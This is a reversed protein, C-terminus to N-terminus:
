GGFYHREIADTAVKVMSPNRAVYNDTEGDQRHGALIKAIHLPVKAICSATYSGDRITNFEVDASVGAAERLRNFM